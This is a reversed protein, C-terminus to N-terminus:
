SPGEPFFNLWYSVLGEAHKGFVSFPTLFAKDIIITWLSQELFHVLETSQLPRGLKRETKKAFPLKRIHEARGPHADEAFTRIIAQLSDFQGSLESDPKPQFYDAGIILKKELDKLERDKAELERKSKEELKIKQDLMEMDKERLQANLGEIEQKRSANTERLSVYSNFLVELNDSRESTAKLSFQDAFSSVRGNYGSLKDSLDRIKKESDHLQDRLNQALPRLYNLEELLPNRPRRKVQSKSFANGMLRRAYNTDENLYRVNFFM